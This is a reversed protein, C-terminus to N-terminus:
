QKILFVTDLATPRHNADSGDTATGPDGFLGRYLNSGDIKILDYSTTFIDGLLPDGACDSAQLPKTVGIAFGGGCVPDLQLQPDGNCSALADDSQPTIKILSTTINYEKAGSVASSAAGVVASAGTEFKMHPTACSLDSFYEALTNFTSGSIVATIKSSSGTDNDVICSSVWTGDYLSTSGGGTSGGATSKTFYSSGLVKARKSASSGDNTEDTEGIYLKDGDIKYISYATGFFLSYIPDNACTSQTLEKAQNLVFGGGCIPPMGFASIGNNAVDLGEPTKFTMILKSVTSNIAKAGAPTSADGADVVTASYITVSEETTCASDTYLRVTQEYASGTVTLSEKQYKGNDSECAGVWTGELASVAGTSGGGETSNKKSDSGKSGCGALLVISALAVPAFINGSTSILNKGGLHKM